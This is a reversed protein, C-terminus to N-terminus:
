SFTEVTGNAAFRDELLSHWSSVRMLKLGLSEVETECTLLWNIFKGGTGGRDKSTFPIFSYNNLM